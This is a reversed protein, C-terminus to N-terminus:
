PLWMNHAFWKCSHVQWNTTYKKLSFWKSSSVPSSTWQRSYSIRLVASCFTRDPLNEYYPSSFHPGSEPFCSISPVYFRNFNLKIPISMKGPGHLFHTFKFFLIQSHLISTESYWTHVLFPINQNCSYAPQVLLVQLFTVQCWQWGKRPM